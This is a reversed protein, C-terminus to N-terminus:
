CYVPAQWMHGWNSWKSEMLERLETSLAGIRHEPHRQNWEQRPILKKRPGVCTEHSDIWREYSISKNSISNWGGPPPPPVIHFLRPHDYSFKFGGSPFFIQAHNSSYKNGVFYLKFFFIFSSIGCCYNLKSSCFWSPQFSSPHSHTLKVFEM